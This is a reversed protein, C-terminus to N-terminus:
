PASRVLRSALAARIRREVLDPTRELQLRTIRLVRYGAALLDGDRNRDSEFALERAHSDRGDLEVILREERWLCDVRHRGGDVDLTVNTEPIEIGRSALFPLFLEELWSEVPKLYLRAGFVERITAAGRARPYRELLDPVSLLSTLNRFEAKRLASEFTDRGEAALDFLTRSVSTLLVGDDPTELEDAPLAQRVAVIGPRRICRPCVIHVNGTRPSIFEWWEGASYLRLAIDPAIMMAARLRAQRTIASHGVAYVGRHVTTLRGVKLRYEIDRPGLGAAALQASNILGDQGEATTRIKPDPSQFRTKGSSNPTKSISVAM